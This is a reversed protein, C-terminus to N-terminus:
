TEGGPADSPACGLAPEWFWRRNGFDWVSRPQVCVRDGPHATCQMASLPTGGDTRVSMWCGWGGRDDVKTVTAWQPGGENTTCGALVLALALVARKGM